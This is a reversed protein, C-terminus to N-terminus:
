RHRAAHSSRARVPTPGKRRPRPSGPIQELARRLRRQCLGMPGPDPNDDLFRQCIPSQACAAINRQEDVGCAAQADAGVRDRERSGEGLRPGVDNEATRGRGLHDLRIKSSPRQLRISVQELLEVRQTLIRGGIPTGARRKGPGLDIM